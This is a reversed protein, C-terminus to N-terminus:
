SAVVEADVIEGTEIDVDGEDDLEVAASMSAVTAREDQVAQVDRLQQRRYEASTPVWKALQRAATKMWMAEPNTAWPSYDSHASASKAKAQEIEDPGVIVVKSTSGDRMIAYAYAGRITGRNGGFWDVTHHPREDSGPDYSFGDQAKVIEVKVSSVAGARYILEILGQYGVIGQIVRPAGKRPAFPVLYFEDTGPTLGRQAATILAGMFANTDNQAAQAIEPKTSLLGRVQAIWVDGSAGEHMHSPLLRKLGDQRALVLSSATDAM